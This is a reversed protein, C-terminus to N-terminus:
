GRSVSGLYAARVKEDNQIQEPNGEAIKRGYNLVVVNDSVGMVLNMDHEVLLVSTGRARVQRILNAIENTETMNLGAVPEDLLCVAPDSVLARAMELRKQDGFSLDASPLNAKHDLGFFRLADWAQEEIMRESEWFGPPHFVSYAFGRTTLAHLGVMVNELVSMHDLVQVNQFTRTLGLAAMSHPARGGVDTGDLLVFGKPPRYMGSIVNIMTTKGAGNPGILATIAGRPMDFSVQALAMIGGFSISIKRVSLIPSPECSREGPKLRSQAGHIQFSLGDGGGPRGWRSKPGNDRERPVTVLESAPPASCSRKQCRTDGTAVIRESQVMVAPTHDAGPIIGPQGTTDPHDCSRQRAFLLQRLAVILGQPLFILISVLILGYCVDKYEDVFHLISPLSTLLTTGFLAGWISGMGGVIVMTVLEVSFFIDFTKPSVFTLYHAYLSGAVSAYLASLVFVKVKFMETNVGLSNAAVESSHLARLGRGVRSNVLNLALVIGMLACGWILYFMKRDSDFTWPGLTLNPIGPFGSPGGTVSDWQITVINVILNFGLTAMVLYHGHLRLTPIGILLAVVGTALLAVLMALWPPVHYTVTLIASLYAGLGYFAAHGLSIQGAYGILLNLGVVTITNLGIINAVNLYYPNPAMVPFAAIAAAGTLLSLYFRMNGRAMNM